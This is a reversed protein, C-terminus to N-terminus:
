CQQQSLVSVGYLMYFATIKITCSPLHEWLYIGMDGDNLHLFRKNGAGGFAGTILVQKLPTLAGCKSPRQVQNFARIDSDQFEEQTNFAYGKM